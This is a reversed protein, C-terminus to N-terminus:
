DSSKLVVSDDVSIVASIPLTYRKDFISQLVIKGRKADL